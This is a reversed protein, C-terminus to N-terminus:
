CPGGESGGFAGVPFTWQGEPLFMEDARFEGTKLQRIAEADSYDLCSEAGLIYEEMTKKNDLTFGLIKEDQCVEDFCSPFLEKIGVWHKPLSFICMMCSCRNWGVRYCPHPNCNNRKFVEWIDRETYDIVPRWWHVLRKSKATANTRHIEMENYKSRGASEGRREGSIILIKSNQKIKDVHHTVTDQVSAKLSGSCWRGQHCGSKAPFKHRNSGLSRLENFKELNRIVTDGVVIKLYASCWRVNLDASKAPFKMRYGYEKLEDSDLINERLEQSREQLKSLKCTKVEGNDTYQIPHSSGVRYVEGWFGNQRWSLRLYTGTAEAFSKVYNATCPWDMKRTPHGGDIDHHWLEIKEKPVGMEILKFYCATSDKGGSFLIIIKDYDELPLLQELHFKQQHPTNAKGPVVPKIVHGTGYIKSDKVGLTVPTNITCESDKVIPSENVINM